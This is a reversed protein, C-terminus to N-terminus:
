VHISGRMSKSVRSTQANFAGASSAALPAFRRQRRGLRPAPQPETRDVPAPEGIESRVLTSIPREPDEDDQEAEREDGFDDGVVPRDEDDVLALHQQRDQMIIRLLFEAAKEGASIIAVRDDGVLDVRM